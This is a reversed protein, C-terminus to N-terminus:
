SWGKFEGLGPTLAHSGHQEYYDLGIPSEVENYFGTEVNVELFWGSVNLRAGPNLRFGGPWGTPSSPFPLIGLSNFQLDFGDGM